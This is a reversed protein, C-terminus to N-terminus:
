RAVGHFSSNPLAPANMDGRFFWKRGKRSPVVITDKAAKAFRFMVVTKRSTEVAIKSHALRSRM